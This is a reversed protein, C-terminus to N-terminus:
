KKSFEFKAMEEAVARSVSEELAQQLSFKIRQTLIDAMNDLVVAMHDQFHQQLVGDVHTLLNQLVNERIDQQIQGLQAADPQPPIPAPAPQTINDQFSPLVGPPMNPANFSSQWTQATHMPPEDTFQLSQPQQWPEPAYAPPQHQQEFHLPAPQQWGYRNQTSYPLPQQAQQPQPQPPSQFHHPAQDSSPTLLPAPIDSYVNVDPTPQSTHPAQRREQAEPTAPIIETLLPINDDHNM